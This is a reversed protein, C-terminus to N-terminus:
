RRFRRPRRQEITPFVALLTRYGEPNRTLRVSIKTAIGLTGESGVFLGLLDYGVPDPGLDGLTVVEGTPLVCELGLIHNLTM